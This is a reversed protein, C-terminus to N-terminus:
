CVTAIIILWDNLQLGAKTMSRSWLRLGLTVFDLFLLITEVIIDVQGGFNRHLEGILTGVPEPTAM